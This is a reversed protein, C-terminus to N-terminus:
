LLRPDIPIKDQSYEHKVQLRSAVNHEEHSPSELQFGSPETFPYPLFPQGYQMVFLQYSNLDYTRSFPDQYFLGSLSPDITSPQHFPTSFGNFQMKSDLAEPWFNFTAEGIVSNYNVSTDSVDGSSSGNSHSYWGNSSDNSCVSNPSPDFRDRRPQVEDVFHDKQASDNGDEPEDLDIGHAMVMHKKFVGRRVYRIVANAHVISQESPYPQKNIHTKQGRVPSSCSDRRTLDMNVIHADTPDILIRLGSANISLGTVVKKAM